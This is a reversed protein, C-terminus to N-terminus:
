QDWKCLQLHPVGFTGLDSIGGHNWLVAHFTGDAAASGGVIQSASNIQQASSFGSPGVLTGLDAVSGKYWLLAHNINYYNNGVVAGLDNGGLGVSDVDGKTGLDQMVGKSWRFAHDIPNGFSDSQGTDSIGIVDGTNTIWIPISNAGGLTGLDIISYQVQAVSTNLCML